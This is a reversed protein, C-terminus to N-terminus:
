TDTMIMDLKTNTVYHSSSQNENGMLEIIRSTKKTPTLGGNNWKSNM